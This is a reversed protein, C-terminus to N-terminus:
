LTDQNSNDAQNESVESKPLFDNRDEGCDYQWWWNGEPLGLGEVYRVCRERLPCGVGKCYQFDRSYSNEAM